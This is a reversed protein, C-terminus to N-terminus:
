EFRKLEPHERRFYRYVLGAASPAVEVSGKFDTPFDERSIESSHHDFWMYCDPHYPLNCLIDQSTVEVKQDQMDKPHAQQSEDCLGIHILMAASVTGDLDGRYIVRM